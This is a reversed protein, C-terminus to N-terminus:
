KAVSNVSMRSIDMIYELTPTSPRRAILHKAALRVNIPNTRHTFSRIAVSLRHKVFDKAVFKASSRVLEPTCQCTDRSITIHMLSRGVNLVHSPRQNASLPVRHHQHPRRLQRCMQSRRKFTVTRHFRNRILLLRSCQKECWNAARRRHSKRMLAQHVTSVNLQIVKIIIRNFPSIPYSPSLTPSALPVLVTQTPCFISLTQLTSPSPLM